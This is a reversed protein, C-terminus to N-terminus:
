PLQEKGSHGEAQEYPAQVGSEKYLNKTVCRNYFARYLYINVQSSPIGYCRNLLVKGIVQPMVAKFVKTAGPFLM